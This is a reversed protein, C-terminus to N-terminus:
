NYKETTTVSDDGDDGDDDIENETNNNTSSFLEAVYLNNSNDSEDTNESNETDDSDDSDYSDYSNDPNDPNDSDDSSDTNDADDTNDTNKANDTNNIINTNNMNDTNDDSDSNDNNDADSTNDTRQENDSDYSNNLESFDEDNKESDTELTNTKENTEQQNQIDQTEENQDPKENHEEKKTMENYQQEYVSADKDNYFKTRSLQDIQSNRQALAGLTTKVESQINLIKNLMASVSSNLKQMLNSNEIKQKEVMRDEFDKFKKEMNQNSEKSIKAHQNLIAQEHQQQNQEELQIVKEIDRTGHISKIVKQFERFNRLFSAWEPLLGFSMFSSIITLTTLLITIVFLLSNSTAFGLSGSVLMIILFGCFLMTFCNVLYYRRWFASKFCKEIDKEKKEAKPQVQKTKKAM